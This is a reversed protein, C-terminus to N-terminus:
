AKPHVAHRGLQALWSRRRRWFRWAPRAAIRYWRDNAVIDLLPLTGNALAARAPAFWNADLMQMSEGPAGNMPTLEVIARDPADSITAFGSPADASPGGTTARALGALTPDDGYVKLTSMAAPLVTARSPAPVHPGGGWLWLSSLRPQRNRERALNNPSAHMWMEIEAALRRLERSEMGTPLAQAIDADLLRAPDVSTVQAPALGTLLFGRPGADHLAYPTLARAFDARWADREAPTLRALGRDLLRVHDLRAELRVPTALWVFAGSAAPLVDRAALTAASLAALDARGLDLALSRRWDAIRRVHAFRLLWDLHPLALAQSLSAARVAEEPLYLDSLILTLRRM